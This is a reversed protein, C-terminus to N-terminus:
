NKKPAKKEASKKPAKKEVSKKPAKKKTSKKNFSLTLITRDPNFREEIIPEEM